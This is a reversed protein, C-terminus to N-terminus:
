SGEMELPKAFPPMETIASYNRTFVMGENSIPLNVEAALEKPFLNDCHKWFV